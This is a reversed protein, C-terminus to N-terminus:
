ITGKARPTEVKPVYPMKEEPALKKPVEPVEFTNIIIIM